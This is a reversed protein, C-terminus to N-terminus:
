GQPQDLEYVVRVQVTVQTQGPSVPVESARAEADGAAMPMDYQVSSAQPAATEEISYVGVVIVGAADAMEDAKVRANEVAAKRAQSAAADTNAVYFSISSVTNAGAGVADDLVQGVITLDRITVTVQNWIEYGQIGKLNGDRDYENIVNVAYGSTAIDEDAVNAAKLTDMIAQTSTSNEDQAAELSANRTVVGFTIDATDPTVDVIGTGEVTIVRRDSTEDTPTSQAVTSLPLMTAVVVILMM